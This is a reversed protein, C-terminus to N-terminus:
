IAGKGQCALLFALVLAGLGAFSVVQFRASGVESCRAGLVPGSRVPGPAAAERHSRDGMLALQPYVAVYLACLVGLRARCAPAFFLRVQRPPLCGVWALVAGKFRLQSLDTSEIGHGRQM